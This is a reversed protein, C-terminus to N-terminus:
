PPGELRILKNLVTQNSKQKYKTNLSCKTVHVYYILFRPIDTNEFGVEGGEGECMKDINSFTITMKQEKM